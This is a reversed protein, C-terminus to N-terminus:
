REIVFSQKMLKPVPKDHLMAPQWQPMQELATILEDDFEENVGNLVKFNVPVGDADVVFEIMINVKRKGEPLEAALAKGTKDIYKLFNDGGGPFQPWQHVANVLEGV